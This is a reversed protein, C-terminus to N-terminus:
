AADKKNNNGEKIKSSNTEGKTGDDVKKDDPTNKRFSYGAFFGIGLIFITAAVLFLLLRKKWKKKPPQRIIVTKRSSESIGQSLGPVSIIQVTVNDPGGAHLAASVLAQAKKDASNSSAAIKQIEADHVCGWLGDTCLIFLAGGSLPVSEAQCRKSDINGGLSQTIVNKPSAAAEEESILGASLMDQIQSHDRGLQRLKGQSLMYCRSDGAHIYYATRQMIFLAVITSGCGKLAPTLIGIESVVKDAHLLAEWLREKPSGTVNERMYECFAQVARRSAEAGGAHGGMGDAVIFLEGDKLTFWGFADENRERVLGANTAQSIDYTKRIETIDM